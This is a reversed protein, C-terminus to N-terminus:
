SKGSGLPLPQLNHGPCILNKHLPRDCLSQILHLENSQFNFTKPGKKLTLRSHLAIGGLREIELVRILLKHSGNQETNNFPGTITDKPIKMEGRTRLCPSYASCDMTYAISFPKRTQVKSEFFVFPM